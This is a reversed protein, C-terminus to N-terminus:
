IRMPMLVYRYSSDGDPCSMVLAGNSDTFGLRVMSDEVSSLGETLLKANFGIVMEPGGYDIDIESEADEGTADTSLFKVAGPKFSMRVGQFKKTTMVAAAQLAFLLPLRGLTISHPQSQPIVRRFDPFRGEVLKTVFHLDGFAFSAVREGIRILVPTESDALAKVLFHVSARPVIVEVDDGEVAAEAKAIHHGNTGVCTAVGATVNMLAGNLYYRVDQVAMAFQVSALLARLVKQPMTLTKVPEGAVVVPFDEALMTAVNFRSRGGQVTLKGGKAETISVVQDPAMTQLVARLRSASVTTAFEGADGGLTTSLTAQVDCDTATFSLAEGQRRLLINGLIPLPSRPPAVDSVQRVAALIESQPAKVVLM